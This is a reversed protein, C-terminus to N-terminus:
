FEYGIDWVDLILTRIWGVPSPVAIGRVQMVAVAFVLAYLVTLVTIEYKKKNKILKPFDALAMTIFIFFVLVIM